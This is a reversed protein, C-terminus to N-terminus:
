WAFARPIRYRYRHFAKALRSISLRREPAYIAFYTSRTGHGAGIVGERGGPKNIGPRYVRHWLIRSRWRLLTEMNKVLGVCPRPLFRRGAKLRDSGAGWVLRLVFEGM